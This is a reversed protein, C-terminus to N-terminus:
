TLYKRVSQSSSFKVQRGLFAVNGLRCQGTGDLEQFVLEAPMKEVTFSSARVQGLKHWVPKSLSAAEFVASPTGSSSPL